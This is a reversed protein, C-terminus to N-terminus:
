MPLQDLWQEFIKIIEPMSARGFGIRFHKTGSYCYVSGPLLLIGAEKRARDCFEEVTGNGLFHVFGTCGGQPSVWSFLHAYKVFFQDLVARNARVIENTRALIKEKNRVAIISLVESPGSNCMSTYTKVSAIQELITEDQCAVWGIRLGALGFSKSMVGLSLARKYQTAAPPLFQSDSFSALGLYVEDSFLIIKHQDLLSILEHQTAPDLVQGTPNHPFNIVLLKTISTIANRVDDVILQWHHEEELEIMTITCGRSQPISLLSQYCPTVVIIHDQPECLANFACFIGDEAGAFCLINSAQLPSYLEQAIIQLLQPHGKSETYGLRLSQWLQLEEQNAMALLDHMAMSEADSSCLLHPVTFEYRNFYEELKFIPLLNM